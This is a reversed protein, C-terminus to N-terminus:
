AEESPMNPFMKQAMSKKGAPRKVASKLFGGEQMGQGLNFLFDLVAPHNGYGSENLAKALTGNPDNQKLARKALSLNYKGQPGWNKVHAEGLERLAKGQAQTNAEIIGGFQQLTSTLQEQTFGNENAWAGMEPPIGDPLTYGDAAPVVRDPPAEVEATSEPPPTVTGEPPAVQAEIPAEVPTEAVPEQSPEAAITEESM